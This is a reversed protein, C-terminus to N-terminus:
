AEEDLRNNFTRSRYSGVAKATKRIDQLERIISSKASEICSLIELDQALIRSVYEEKIALATSIERREASTIDPSASEAEIQSDIYAITELIKERTQYFNELNSFEGKAFNLIENENVSYFKELYHNKQNLLSIIRPV